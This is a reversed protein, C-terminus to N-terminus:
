GFAVEAVPILPEGGYNVQNGFLNCTALAKDCGATVSFTDGATTAFPFPHLLVFNAAGDWQTVLRKFGNNKGSTMSLVGLVFTASGGPAAVAGSAQLTTNSSAVGIAGTKTYTAATLTCRSDFLRHRCHSQYLNRPMMQSFIGRYDTATIYAVTDSCDVAGIQGRFKTLTGVPSVGAIPIPGTPMSAFYATSVIIDANDLAGEQAAQLWPNGNITDPFTALTIPDFARPQYVLQWTDTDLGVKWHGQSGANDNSGMLDPQWNIGSTFMGGTGLISPPNWISSDAPAIAFPAEAYRLQTGDQLTLTYFDWEFLPNVGGAANLLAALATSVSKTM